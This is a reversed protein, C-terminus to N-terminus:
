VDNLIAIVVLAARGSSCSNLTYTAGSAATPCYSTSGPNGCNVGRKSEPVKLDQIYFM